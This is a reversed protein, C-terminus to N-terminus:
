ALKQATKQRFELNNSNVKALVVVSVVNGQEDFVPSYQTLYSLGFAQKEVQFKEGAFGREYYRKQQEAVETPFVSLINLGKEIVKNQKALFTETYDNYVQVKFDADIAYIVEDIANVISNIYNSQRAMEEQTAHLEEMNQRLEEEQACMEENKQQVDQLLLQTQKELAAMASIDKTMIVVYDVKKSRGFIPNYQVLFTGGFGEETQQFAEGEFARAYIQRYHEHAQPPFCNLINMDSTLTLGIGTFFDAALQNFRKLEFNPNIVFIADSIANLVSNLYKAQENAAEQTKQLDNFTDLMAEEQAKMMANQEQAENYLKEANAKAQVIETVNKALVVVSIVQGNKDIIPNYQVQYNNGFIFQEIEYKEGAFSRVYFQKYENKNEAPFCDIINFGKEIDTGLNHFFNKTYQNFIDIKLDLNVTFIVEDIANILDEMYRSQRSMEDQTAQLEEMNQRLEEEQAKMEESQQQSMKLLKQTQVAIKTATISSAINEAVKEIFAIHYSELKQFAALELVGIVNTDMKLPVLVLCTPTAHGLGSTIRIYDKPIDTMLITDQELFCQGVLGEGIRIQKSIYKKREYAYCATLELYKESINDNNLIFLAGQNANVYRVLNQIIADNFAAFDTYNARLIDAFKALGETTWNRKHDEEAVLLLRERMLLLANGLTDAESSPQYQTQLHGQGIATAFHSANAINQGLQNSATVIEVFENAPLQLPVAVTGQALTNLNQSIQQIPQWYQRSSWVLSLILLPVFLITLIILYNNTYEINSKAADSLSLEQQLLDTNRIYSFTLLVLWIFIFVLALLNFRGISSRINFFKFWSKHTVTNEIKKVTIANTFNLQM